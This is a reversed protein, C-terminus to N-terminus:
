PRFLAEDESTSHKDPQEALQRVPPYDQCWSYLQAYFGPERARLCPLCWAKQSWVVLVATSENIGCYTCLAV